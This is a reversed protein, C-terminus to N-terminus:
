SALDKEIAKLAKQPTDMVSINNWKDLQKAAEVERKHVTVKIEELFTIIGHRCFRVCDLCGICLLRNLRIRGRKRRIAGQQCAWLASCEDCKKCTDPHLMVPLYSIVDGEKFDTPVVFITTKKTKSGLVALNTVLNDAIGTAIKAVTNGTAPSIIIYDYKDNAARAASPYSAGEDNEFIVDHLKEEILQEILAYDEEENNQTEHSPATSKTGESMKKKLQEKKSGLWQFKEIFEGTFIALNFNPLERVTDIYGEAEPIPPRFVGYCQAVERAASSFFLDVEVEQKEMLDGLAEFSEFLWCGAGTIAWAIKKKM